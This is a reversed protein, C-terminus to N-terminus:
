LRWVQNCLKLEGSSLWTELPFGWETVLLLAGGRPTNQCGWREGQCVALAPPSPLQFEEGASTSGSEIM